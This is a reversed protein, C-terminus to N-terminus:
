KNCALFVMMAEEETDFQIGIQSEKNRVPMWKGLTEVILGSVYSKKPYGYNTMAHKYVEWYEKPPVNSFESTQPFFIARPNQKSIYM